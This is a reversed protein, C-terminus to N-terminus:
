GALAEGLFRFAAPTVRDWYGRTHDGPGWEAVAPPPDLDAAFRQIRDLLPDATGCWLGVPTTALRDAADGLDRPRGDDTPALYEPGDPLAPSFAAVARLDEVAAALLLAGFGGMSWGWAAQRDLAFGRDAVWTPVEEVLMRQPDDPDDPGASRWRKRGGDVGVLVFPPVGDRAAATLFRALGFGDFDATTASAGHLVLCVPLGAGAGHGDPVATWLGVETGRAESRRRELRVEGAPVDPITGDPGTDALRRKIRETGPVWDEVYAATGLAAVGVTAGAGVLFTRRSPM